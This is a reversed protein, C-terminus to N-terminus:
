AVSNREEAGPADLPEVAVAAFGAALEKADVTKSKPRRKPATARKM